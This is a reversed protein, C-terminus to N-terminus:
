GFIGPYDMRMDLPGDLRFSFGRPTDLQYSSVGLDSGMSKAHDLQWYTTLNRFDGHVPV